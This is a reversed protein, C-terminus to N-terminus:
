HKPSEADGIYMSTLVAFIYAQIAAVFIEFAMIITVFPVIPIAILYNRFYLIMSELVIIIIHGALM